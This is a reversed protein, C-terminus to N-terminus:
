PVLIAINRCSGKNSWGTGPQEKETCIIHIDVSEEDLAVEDNSNQVRQIEHLIRAATLESVLMYSMNIPNKLKATDMYFRIHDDLKGGITMIVIAANLIDELRKGYEAPEIASLHWFEIAYDTIMTQFKKSWFQKIPTLQYHDETKFLEM